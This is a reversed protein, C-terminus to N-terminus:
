VGDDFRVVNRLNGFTGFTVCFARYKEFWANEAKRDIKARLDGLNDDDSAM